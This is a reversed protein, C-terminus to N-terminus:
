PIPSRDLVYQYVVYAVRDVEDVLTVPPPNAWSFNILTPIPTSDLAYAYLVAALRDIESAISTPQPNAWVYSQNIPIPGDLVYLAEVTALRALAQQATQPLPLGWQSPNAPSYYGPTVADSGQAVSDLVEFPTSILLQETFNSTDTWQVDVKDQQVAQNVLASGPILYQLKGATPSTAPPVVGGTAIILLGNPDRLSLKNTSMSTFDVPLGGGEPPETFTFIYQCDEGRAQALLKVSARGVIVSYNRTKLAM